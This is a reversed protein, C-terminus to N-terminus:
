YTIKGDARSYYYAHDSLVDEPELQTANVDRVMSGFDALRDDNGTPVLIVEHISSPLIYFDSGFKEAHSAMVGDYIMCVAGNFDQDNTLVYMPYLPDDPIIVSPYEPLTALGHLISNMNRLTAPLLKKTNEKAVAYLGDTSQGWLLMHANRVLITATGIDSDIPFMCYFVIALDLFPVHPADKLLEANKERNILKMVIRGRIKEFDTFFDVNIRDVTRNKEYQEVIDRYVKSFSDGSKMSRYYYNLYLAPGINVGNELIVLGDLFEGNNRYVKQVAIKKPNPIDATLRAIVLEKFTEYQM